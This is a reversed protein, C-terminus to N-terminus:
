KFNNLIQLPVLDAINSLPRKLFVRRTLLSRLGSSNDSYSETLETTNQDQIYLEIKDVNSLYPRLADVAAKMRDQLQASPTTQDNPAFFLLTTFEADDAKLLTMLISSDLTRNLTEANLEGGFSLKGESFGAGAIAYFHPLGGFLQEDYAEGYRFVSDGIRASETITLQGSFSVEQDTDGKLVNETIGGFMISVISGYFPSPDSARTQEFQQITQYKGSLDFKSMGVNSFVAWATTESSTAEFPWEPSETITLSSGKVDNLYYDAMAVTLFVALLGLVPYVLLNLLVDMRIKTLSVLQPAPQSLDPNIDPDFKSTPISSKSEPPREASM